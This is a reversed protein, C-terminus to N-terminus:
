LRTREAATSQNMHKGTWAVQGLFQDTLRQKLAIAGRAAALELSSTQAV